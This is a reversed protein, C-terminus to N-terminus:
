AGPSSRGTTEPAEFRLKQMAEALRAFRHRVTTDIIKDEMFILLGGQLEPKVEVHLEIPGHHWTELKKVLAAEEDPHLPVASQVRVGLINRHRRVLAELHEAIDDLFGLRNRRVLLHLFDATFCPGPGTFSARILHVKRDTLIAPNLLFSRLDPTSQWLALFSRFDNLHRDLDLRVIAHFFAEAYRRPIVQTRM